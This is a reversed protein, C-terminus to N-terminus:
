PVRFIQCVLFYYTNLQLSFLVQWTHSLILGVNFVLKDFKQSTKSSRWRHYPIPLGRHSPM